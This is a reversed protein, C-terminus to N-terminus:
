GILYMYPPIMLHPKCSLSWHPVCLTPFLKFWGCSKQLLLSQCLTPNVAPRIWPSLSVTHLSVTLVLGAISPLLLRTTPSSLIFLNLSQFWSFLCWWPSYKFYGSSVIRYMMRYLMRYLRADTIPVSDRQGHLTAATQLNGTEANPARRTFLKILM